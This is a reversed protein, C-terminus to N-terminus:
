NLFFPFIIVKVESDIINSLIYESQFNVIYEFVGPVYDHERSISVSDPFIKAILLVQIINQCSLVVQSVYHLLLLLKKISIGYTKFM